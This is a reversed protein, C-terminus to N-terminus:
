NKGSGTIISGRSQAPLSSSNSPPQTPEKAKVYDYWSKSIHRRINKIMMIRVDLELNFSLPFWTDPAVRTYDVSGDTKNVVALLGGWYKYPERLAFEVRVLGFDDQSVWLRGSTQNLAREMRNNAPLKGEKPKFDIAWTHFNRIRETKILKYEYRRTFDKDFRIENEQKPQLSEGRSRRKDVERIFDRKKEEEEKREKQNLPQGQKEVLEEFVAGNLPYQILKLVEIEKVNGDGDFSQYKMIAESMFSANRMSQYQSEARAASRDVIEQAALSTNGSQSDTAVAIHSILILIFSAMTDIRM